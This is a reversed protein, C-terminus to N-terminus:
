PDVLNIVGYYTENAVSQYIISSYAPNEPVSYFVFNSLSSGSIGNVPDNGTMGDIENTVGDSERFALPRSSNVNELNFRYRRGKVLTVTPMAQASGSWVYQEGSSSIDYSYYYVDGSTLDSVSASLAAVSASLVQVISLDNEAEILRDDVEQIAKVIPPIFQDYALAKIDSGGSAFNHYGPFTPSASYVESAVFGLHTDADEGFRNNSVILVPNLSNVFTLGYSSSSSSLMDRSDEYRYIPNDVVIIQDANGIKISDNGPITVNNGLTITNSYNNVNQDTTYSGSQRGIAINSNGTTLYLLSEYGISTNDYGTTLSFQSRNGIAVNDKTQIPNFRSDQDSPEINQLSQSGIAINRFGGKIMTGHGVATNEFNHFAASMSRSGIVTSEYAASANGHQLLFTSASPFINNGVGTTNRYYFHTSASTKISPNGIGILISSDSSQVEFLGNPPLNLSDIENALYSYTAYQELNLSDIESSIYATASATTIYDEINLANISNTVYAETAYGAPAPTTLIEVWSASGGYGTSIYTRYEEAVVAFDGPQVSLNNRQAITSVQHTSVKVYDPLQDLPVKGNILSASAYELSNWPTVGDGIKFRKTDTVFGLEGLRLVPNAQTWENDTGRRFLITYAM